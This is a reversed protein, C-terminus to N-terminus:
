PLVGLLYALAMIIVLWALLAVGSGLLFFTTGIMTAM